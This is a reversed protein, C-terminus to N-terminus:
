GREIIKKTDQRHNKTDQDEVSTAEFFGTTTSSQSRL